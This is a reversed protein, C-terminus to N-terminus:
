TDMDGGMGTNIVTGTDHRSIQYVSDEWYTRGKWIIKVIRTGKIKWIFKHIIEDIGIFFSVSKKILIINFSPILKPLISM